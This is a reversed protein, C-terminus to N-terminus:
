AAPERGALTAVATVLDRRQVPKPMYVQFGAARAQDADERRAYATLAIAPVTMHSARLSRVLAYGDEDPMAIDSVLVTPYWSSLTLRAEAASGATEVTAGADELIARVAGLTERDDDVLLVRVAHLRQPEAEADIPAAARAPPASPLSAEEFIPLTVTFTAGKGPGASAAKVDGGHLDVLHRVIALGLGLGTQARTTTTDAQRFRDFVHPLFELPIGAGTDAVTLEARGGVRRLRVVVRGNPPTFKVANNLLNAVIQQLRHADGLVVPAAEDIDSELFVSKKEADPRVAEIAAEVPAVLSVPTRSLQLRGAVIRSVDLLDEVLRSQASASREIADVAKQAERGRLKGSRLLWTWGLIATLPTRLEHSVMALFEDKMRSAVEAERRAAQERAILDALSRKMRAFARALSRIESPGGVRVPRDFEGAELARVSRALRRVPAAIWHSAILSLLAGVLAFLGARLVLDTVLAEAPALAEDYGLHADVCAGGAFLQLPRLGHITQVGRYDIDVVEAPGQMCQRVPEAIAAAGPPAAHRPPTLFNADADILFVEGQSGLGSLGTVSSELDEVPFQMTLVTAGNIARIAYDFSNDRPILKAFQDPVDPRPREGVQGVWRGDYELLVGRAHETARLEELAVHVCGLELALMGRSTMEGCLSQVGTLFGQARQHRSELVRGLALEVQQAAVRVSRRAERELDRSSSRYAVITLVLATTVVLGVLTLLLQAALSLARLRM